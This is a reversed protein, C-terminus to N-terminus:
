SSSSVLQISHLAQTRGLRFARKLITSKEVEKLTQLFLIHTASQLSLGRISSNSSLLLLPTIGAEFERLQNAIGSKSGRLFAARITTKALIQTYVRNLLTEFQAYIIFKGKPNEELIKLVAEIKSPLPPSSVVSEELFPDEIYQIQSVQIEDRCMPCFVSNTLCHILCSACFARNCCPTVTTWKLCDYCVPCEEKLHTQLTDTYPKQLQKFQLQHYVSTINGARLLHLFETPLTGERQTFLPPSCQVTTQYLPPYAISSELFADACKIVTLYRLPHVCKCFPEFFAPSQTKYYTIKTYQSDIHSLLFAKVIPHYSDIEENPMARVHHSHIYTNNSLIHTYSPTLFWNFLTNPRPCSTPIRLSDAEDYFVRRWTIDLNKTQFYKQLVPFLTNSILVCEARELQIEIDKNNIDRVTKLALMRLQTTSQIQSEWQSFLTHPVIILSNFLTFPRDVVEEISYCTPSSFTDLLNRPPFAVEKMRAIHLLACATKGSGIDDALIGFQSFFRKAPQGEGERGGQHRGKATHVYIGQRFGVELEEMRHLVALQHPRLPYPSKWSAPTEVRPSTETLTSTLVEHQLKLISRLLRLSTM